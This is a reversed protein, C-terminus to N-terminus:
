LSSVRHSHFLMKSGRTCFGDGLSTHLWFGKSDKEKERECVRRQVGEIPSM